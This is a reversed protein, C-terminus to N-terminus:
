PLVWRPSEELHPSLLVAPLTLTMTAFPLKLTHLHSPPSIFAFPLFLFFFSMLPTKYLSLSFYLSLPTGHLSVMLRFVLLLCRWNASCPLTCVCPQGRTVFCRS